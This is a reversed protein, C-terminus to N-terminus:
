VRVKFYRCRRKTFIYQHAQRPGNVTCLKPFFNVISIFFSILFSASGSGSDAYECGQLESLKECRRINCCVMSQLCTHQLTFFIAFQPCRTFDQLYKLASFTYLFSCFQRTPRVAFNLRSFCVCLVNILM